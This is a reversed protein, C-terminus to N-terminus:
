LFNVPSLLKVKTKQLKSQKGSLSLTGQFFVKELLLNKKLFFHCKIEHNLNKIRQKLELTPNIKFSRLLRNRKNIKNKISRHPKLKVINNSYDVLPVIRDVIKILENEFANWYQQVDDININWDVKKLEDNLWEKSYRRWDRRKTVVPDEKTGDISFSVLMHDGFLPELSTINQVLTPDKVYIHDIISSRLNSGVMRSWTVFNVMQVLNYTSLKDEFDGFLNKCAYNDDYIKNYDLNFDGLIVCNVDLASRILELQYCFKVRANVNNQPNFSRYVNIIRKISLNSAIDIIVLHSNVGELDFRRKFSISNKIFIGTRSKLSNTEM